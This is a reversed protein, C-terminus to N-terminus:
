RSGDIWDRFVIREAPPTIAAAALHNPGVDLDILTLGDVQDASVDLGRLPRDGIGEGCAKLLAEKRVWSRLWARAQHQSPTQLFQTLEAPSLTTDALEPLEGPELRNLAEVDVGVPGLAIALLALEDCHTLSLGLGRVSPPRGSAADLPVDRADRGLYAGLVQRVAGHSIAFQDRREDRLRSHRGREEASLSAVHREPDGRLEIRWVHIDRATPRALTPSEADV